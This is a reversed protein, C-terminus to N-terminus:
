RNFANHPADHRRAAVCSEALPERRSLSALRGEREPRSHASRSEGAGGKPSPGINERSMTVPRAEVTTNMTAPQLHQPDCVM